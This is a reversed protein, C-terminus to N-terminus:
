FYNLAIYFFNWLWYLISNESDGTWVPRNPRNKVPEAPKPRNQSTWAPEPRNWVRDPCFDPKEFFIQQGSRGVRYVPWVPRNQRNRDPESLM